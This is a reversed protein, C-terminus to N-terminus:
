GRWDDLEEDTFMVEVGELYGRAQQAYATKELKFRRKEKFSKIVESIGSCCIWALIVATQAAENFREVITDKPIKNEPEPM